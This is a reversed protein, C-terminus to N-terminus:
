QFHTVMIKINMIIHGNKSRKRNQASYTDEVVKRFWQISYTQEEEKQLEMQIEEPLGMPIRRRDKQATLVLM